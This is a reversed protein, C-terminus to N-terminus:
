LELFEILCNELNSEKLNSKFEYFNKNFSVFNQGM